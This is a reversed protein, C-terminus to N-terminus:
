RAVRRPRRNGNAAKRTKRRMPWVLAVTNLSGFDYGLYIVAHPIDFRGHSPDNRHEEPQSYRSVHDSFFNRTYAVEGYGGVSLRNGKAHNMVSDAANVQANATLVMSIFAIFSVLRKMSKRNKAAFTRRNKRM